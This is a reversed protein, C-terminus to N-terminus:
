LSDEDVQISPCYMGEPVVLTQMARDYDEPAYLRVQARADNSSSGGDVDVLLVVHYTRGDIQCTQHDRDFAILDAGAKTLNQILNQEGDYIGIDQDLMHITLDMGGDETIRMEDGVGLLDDFYNSIAGGSVANVSVAMALILILGACLSALRRSVRPTKKKRNMIDEMTMEGSAHVRSFTNRYLDKNNM